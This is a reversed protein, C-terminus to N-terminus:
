TNGRQYEASANRPSAVLQEQFGFALRSPSVYPEGSGAKRLKRYKLFHSHM